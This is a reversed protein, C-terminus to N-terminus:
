DDTGETETGTYGNIAAVEGQSINWARPDFGAPTPRDSQGLMNKGLFIAMAPSKEALKWQMRRLSVKGMERKEDFVTSFSQKYTRMCWSGLTKSTVDFFGCIEDRTCQLACLKEFTEKDIEKQPRGGKNSSM